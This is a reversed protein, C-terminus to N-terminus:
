KTVQPIEQSIQGIVTPEGQGTSFPSMKEVQELGAFKNIEDILAMFDETTLEDVSLEDEGCDGIEKPVIKPSIVAIPILERYQKLTKIISEDDLEVGTVQEGKMSQLLVQTLPLFNIKIYDSLNLKKIEVELGSPLIVKKRNQKKYERIDM